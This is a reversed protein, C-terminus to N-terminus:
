NKQSMNYLKERYRSEDDSMSKGSGGSPPHALGTLDRIIMFLLALYIVINIIPEFIQWVDKPDDGLSKLQTKLPSGDTYFYPWPDFHFNDGAFGLGAPMTFSIVPLSTTATSTLIDMFRTVYGLPQAQMFGDHAASLLLRFSGEDPTLMSAVCYAIDFSVFPNCGSNDIDFNTDLLARTSSALKDYIKDHATSGVLIPFTSDTDVTLGSFLNTIGFPRKLAVTINQRGNVQYTTTTSYSTLGFGTVPFSQKQAKFQTLGPLIQCVGFCLTPAQPSVELEVAMGSEYDELVVYVNFTIESTSAVLEDTMPSTIRVRTTTESVAGTGTWSTIKNKYIYVISFIADVGSQRVLGFSYDERGAKTSITWYTGSDTIDVDAAKYMVVTRGEESEPALILTDMTTTADKVASYYDCPIVPSAGSCTAANTIQAMGFMLGACFFAQLALGLGRKKAIEGM